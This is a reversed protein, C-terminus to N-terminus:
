MVAPIQCLNLREVEQGQEIIARCVGRCEVVEYGGQPCRGLPLEDLPFNIDPQRPHASASGQVVTVREWTMAEAVEHCRAPRTAHDSSFRIAMRTSRLM